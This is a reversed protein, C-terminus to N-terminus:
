PKAGDLDPDQLAGQVFSVLRETHALAGQTNSIATILEATDEPSLDGEQSRNAVARATELATEWVAASQMIADAVAFPYADHALEPHPMLDLAGSQRNIDWAASSTRRFSWEFKLKGELPKHSARHALLLTLDSSVEGQVQHICEMQAAAAKGNRHLEERIEDRAKQLQHRHHVYEVAQELGIAILLGVTITAIHVLFDKWTHTPHHPPHVDLM